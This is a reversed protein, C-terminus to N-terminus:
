GICISHKKIKKSEINGLKIDSKHLKLNSEFDIDKKLM